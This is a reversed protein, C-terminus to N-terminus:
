RPSNDSTGKRLARSTGNRSAPPSDKRRFTLGTEVGERGFRTRIRDMAAEAQARKRAAPDLLDGPDARWDPGLESIGIGILRFKTGDLERELLQRGIRFIRDALQTPEDLARNRTRTRFSATKLKLVVTRGALGKTKAREAVRESLRRLIPVLDIEASLDANFTTEASISKARHGTSVARDDIGRSLNFLRVGMSGYRTALAKRELKQLQAIHTIGNRALRAQMAKGVGWIASVPLAALVNMTEAHGIVAYGRPKDLDSALKALFKNHSLGISVTIGIAREIDCALRALMVSPPAGHLRQTGSLDLFAEDISLPEVLPTLGGMLERVQRSVAVYKAMDPAIVVAQPCARLAKFMPMASHIGYTRAVYCAASVVGRQRGGVVVPREALDPRDRKEITAYFADCDIHAINLDHLERHAIVRPGFCSPCRRADEGPVDFEHLCDRCFAPVCTESGGAVLM